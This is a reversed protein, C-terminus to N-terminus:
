IKAFTLCSFGAFSYIRGTREKILQFYDSFDKQMWNSQALVNNSDYVFYSNDCKIGAIVHLGGDQSALLVQSSVLEYEYWTLPELSAFSIKRTFDDEFLVQKQPKLSFSKVFIILPPSEMDETKLVVPKTPDDLSFDEFDIEIYQGKNFIAKNITELAEETFHGDFPQITEQFKKIFKVNFSQSGVVNQLAKGYKENNNITKLIEKLKKDENRKARQDDHVKIFSSIKWTINGHSTLAKNRLEFINYYLAYIYQMM